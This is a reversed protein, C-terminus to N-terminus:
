FQIRLRANFTRPTLRTPVREWIHNGPDIWTYSITNKMDFINLVELSLLLKPSPSSSTIGKPR